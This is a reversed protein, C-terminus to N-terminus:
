RDTGHLPVAPRHLPAAAIKETMTLAAKQLQKAAMLRGSEASVRNTMVPFYQGCRQRGATKNALLLAAAYARLLDKDNTNDDKLSPLDDLTGISFRRM